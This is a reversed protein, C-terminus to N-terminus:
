IHAKVIKIKNLFIHMYDRLMKQAIDGHIKYFTYFTSLKWQVVVFISKECEHLYFSCCIYVLTMYLSFCFIVQLAGFQLIHM